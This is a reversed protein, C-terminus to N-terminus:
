RHPSPTKLDTTKSRLCFAQMYALPPARLSDDPRHPNVVAVANPLVDRCEHHDTVVTEIGLSEAYAIEDIATIGTDVTIM